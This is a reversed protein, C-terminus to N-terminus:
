RTLALVIYMLIVLVAIGILIGGIIKIIKKFLDM